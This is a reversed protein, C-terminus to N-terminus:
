TAVLHLELEVRLASCLKCVGGRPKVVEVRGVLGVNAGLERDQEVPEDDRMWNDLVVDGAARGGDAAREGLSLSLFQGVLQLEAGDRKIESQLRVVRHAWREAGFLQ